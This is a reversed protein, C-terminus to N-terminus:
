GELLDANEFMTGIKVIDHHKCRSNHERYWEEDGNYQYHDLESWSDVTREMQENGRLKCLSKNYGNDYDLVWKGYKFCIVARAKIEVDYQSSSPSYYYSTPIRRKSWVEVIDGEFLPKNFTRDTVVFENMETYQGISEPVVLHSAGEASEEIIFHEYGSKDLKEAKVYYGEVWEGNDVRKGHFLYTRMM